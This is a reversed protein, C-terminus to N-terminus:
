LRCGLLSQKWAIPDKSGASPMGLRPAVGTRAPSSVVQSSPPKSAASAYILSRVCLLLSGCDHADLVAHGNRHGRTVTAPCRWRPHHAASLQFELPERLFGDSAWASWPSGLAVEEGGLGALHVPAAAPTATVASSSSIPAARTCAWWIGSGRAVSAPRFLLLLHLLWRLRDALVTCVRRHLLVRAAELDASCGAEAAVGRAV